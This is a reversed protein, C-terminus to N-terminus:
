CKSVLDIYAVSFSIFFGLCSLLFYSSKYLVQFNRGHNHMWQRPFMENMFGNLAHVFEELSEYKKTIDQLKGKLAEIEESQYTNKSAEWREGMNYSTMSYYSGPTPGLGLARM